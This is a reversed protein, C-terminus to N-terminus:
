RNPGVSSIRLSDPTQVTGLNHNLDCQLPTQTAPYHTSISYPWRAGVVIRQFCFAVKRIMRVVRYGFASKTLSKFPSKNLFLLIYIM